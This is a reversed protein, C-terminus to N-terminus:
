HESGQPSLTLCYLTRGDPQPEPEFGMKELYNAHAPTGPNTYIKHIGRQLFVEAQETYIYRGIKFDRYGPIAYDLQVHLCHDDRMEGIMLGAPVTNRLAFFALQNENVTTPFDPQFKQIDERYFNLFYDLYDSRREVELLHFFEKTALMERLYIIDIIVIFFNVAAVPYAQILLGYATFFIAGILNIVRLRLISKMTLSIAILISAIYGIIEYILQTPM